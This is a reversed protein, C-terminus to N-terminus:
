LLTIATFSITENKVKIVKRGGPLHIIIKKLKKNQLARAVEVPVLALLDYEQQTIMTANATEIHLLSRSSMVGFVFEIRSGNVLKEELEPLQAVMFINGNLLEFVPRFDTYSTFNVSTTLLHNKAVGKGAISFLILFIIGLGINQKKM